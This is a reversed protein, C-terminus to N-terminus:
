ERFVIAADLRSIRWAPALSAVVAVVLVPLLPRLVTAPPFSLAVSPLVAEIIPRLGFAIAIATGYGLLTVSLTQVVAVGCLAVNGVGLAKAIGIERRRRLTSAYATFGVILAALGAGVWTMLQVLEIGMQLALRRDSAVFAPRSLANVGGVHERIRTALVGDAVGPSATVMLYSAAEPASLMDALDAYEVFSVSNAMSYAGEALGVITLERDFARAADGISMGTTVGIVSPIVIEGPGPRRKGRVRGWPGGRSAGDPLGILYSFWRRGGIEVFANVHLIPTVSEVGAIVRVDDVVENRMMSSAMHMNAVGDQMVWVDAPTHELYAVIRDSEGAFMGDVLLVVLLSFAV